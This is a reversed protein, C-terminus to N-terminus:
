KHSSPVILSLPAFSFAGRSNHLEERIGNEEAMCKQGSIRSLIAMVIVNWSYSAEYDWYTACLCIWLRVTNSELIPFPQLSPSPIKGQESRGVMPWSFLTIKGIEREGNGPISFLSFGPLAFDAKSPISFSNLRRMRHAPPPPFVHAGLLLQM